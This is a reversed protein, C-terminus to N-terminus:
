KVEKWYGEVDIREFVQDAMLKEIEDYILTYKPKDWYLLCDNIVKFTGGYENKLFYIDREMPTPSVYLLNDYCLLYKADASM